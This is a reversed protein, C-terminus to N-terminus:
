YQRKGVLARGDRDFYYSWGEMEVGKQPMRITVEHVWDPLDGTPYYYLMQNKKDYQVWGDTLWVYFGEPYQVDPVYIETPASTEKSAMSMHFEHLPRAKGKEPVYYTYDSHFSM